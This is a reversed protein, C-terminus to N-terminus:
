VAELLRNVTANLNERSAKAVVLVEDLESKEIEVTSAHLLPVKNHEAIKKEMDYIKRYLSRNEIELVQIRRRLFAVENSEIDESTQNSSCSNASGDAFSSGEEDSDPEQHHRIGYFIVGKIRSDEM